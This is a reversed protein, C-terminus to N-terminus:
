SARRVAIKLPLWADIRTGELLRSHVELQGGLSRLREEMSRIGIGEHSHGNLLFGRGRDAVTVHLKDGLGEIRIEARNAGSHRKVNRLGEQVIRFLCLAVDDPIHGPVNKHAFDVEIGQQDAFEMCFARTGPVLGLSELTSSHLNHSLSHLDTGLESVRAWIHQLQERTEMPFERVQDAVRELDIALIALRQNYDDHIERAVRKREEEQAHILRGTLSTLAEAAMKRETVDLCSGIYGAFSRDPNFRPVGIDFLWRYEGDHRRLRYEMRFSERKDFASTYTDLCFQLDEPHVGEAWGNGLEADMSRGTFELWPQNFYNCLKDTGSMWIMVPATNAVLRFRQESERLAHAADKSEEVLAALFTFPIAAFLLFVQLSFVNELPTPGTFPGRGYVTGCISLFVVMLTSTAVGTSGLRLASWLLFPLLSYLLVPRSGVGPAVFTFYGLIGLGALLLAAELCYAISTRRWTLATNVWGLIAPTVTLLALAETLFSIRWALWYPTDGMAIPGIFAASVPALVVVFILYLSLRRISNLRLTGGFAFSAGCAAILVEIGDSIMLIVSSRIPLATQVDYLLFGALGAGLIALWTKRPTLLLMAVLLACGPWLPWIMQPRLMLAHGLWATLYSLGAVLCVLGGLQFPSNPNLIAGAGRSQEIGM